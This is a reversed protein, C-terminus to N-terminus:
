KLQLSPFVNPSIYVILKPHYKVQCTSFSSLFVVLTGAAPNRLKTSLWFLFVFSFTGLRVGCGCWRRLFCSFCRTSRYYLYFKCKVTRNFYADTFMLVNLRRMRVSCVQSSFALQQKLNTSSAQDLRCEEHDLEKFCYLCYVTGLPKQLEGCGRYINKNEFRWM